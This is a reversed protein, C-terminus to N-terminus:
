LEHREYIKGLILDTKVIYVAFFTSPLTIQFCGILLSGLGLGNFGARAVPEHGGYLGVTLIVIQCYCVRVKDRGLSTSQVYM